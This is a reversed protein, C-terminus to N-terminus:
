PYTTRSGYHNGLARRRENRRSGQITSYFDKGKKVTEKKWENIDVQLDELDMVLLSQKDQLDQSELQMSELSLRRTKLERLCAHLKGQVTPEMDIVFHQLQFFSHREVVENKSFIEDMSKVIENM